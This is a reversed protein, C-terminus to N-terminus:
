EAWRASTRMIYGPKTPCFPVPRLFAPVTTAKFLRQHWGNFTICGRYVSQSFAKIWSSLLTNPSFVDRSGPSKSVCMRVDFLMPKLVIEWWTVNTSREFFVNKEGRSICSTVTRDCRGRGAYIGHRDTHRCCTVHVRKFGRGSCCGRSVNAVVVYQGFGKETWCRRPCTCERIKGTIWSKRKERMVGISCNRAQTKRAAWM